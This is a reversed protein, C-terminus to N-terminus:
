WRRDGCLMVLDVFFVKEEWDKVVTESTELLSHSPHLGMSLFGQTILNNQLHDGVSAFRDFM